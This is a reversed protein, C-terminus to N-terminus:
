ITATREEEKGGMGWVWPGSTSDTVEKSWKWFLVREKGGLSEAKPRM